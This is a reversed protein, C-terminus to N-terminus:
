FAPGIGVRFGLGEHGRAVELRVLTELPTHLTAGFGYARRFEGPRFDSVRPAVQGADVFVGVDLLQSPSWRWEATVVLANRDRFRLTPYARLEDSGGLYPLLYFPVAHGDAASTHNLRGRVALVWNENLVPIFQSVETDLERFSLLGDGREQWRSLEVRYRGGQRAYGKGPSRWDVEAFTSTRVFATNAGLGPLEARTFREDIPRVGGSSGTRVDWYEFGGGVAFWRTPNVKIRADAITPRLLFDTRDQKSTADGIGYFPVAPADVWRFRTRLDLRHDWLMPIRLQADVTKYNRLSWGVHVDLAGTDNFPLRVGPGFAITGGRYISGFWPYFGVPKAIEDGRTDFRGLLREIRGPKYPRLQQAKAAQAEALTGARTQQAAAPWAWGTLTLAAVVALAIRSGVREGM